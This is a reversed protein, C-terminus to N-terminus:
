LFNYNGFLNIYAGWIKRILKNYVGKRQSKKTAWIDLFRRVWTQFTGFATPFPFM